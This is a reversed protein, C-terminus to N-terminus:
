VEMLLPESYLNIEMMPLTKLAEVVLTSIIQLGTEHMADVLDEVSKKKM